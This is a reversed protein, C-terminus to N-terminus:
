NSLIQQPENFIRHVNDYNENIEFHSIEVALPQCVPSHTLIVESVILIYISNPKMQWSLFSLELSDNFPYCSQM